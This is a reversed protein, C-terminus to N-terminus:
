VPNGGPLIEETYANPNTYQQAEEGSKAPLPYADLGDWRIDNYFKSKICTGDEFLSDCGWFGVPSVAFHKCQVEPGEPWNASVKEPCTPKWVGHGGGAAMPSMGGPPGHGDAEGYLGRSNSEDGSMLMWQRWRDATLWYAKPTHYQPHKKFFSFMHENVVREVGADVYPVDNLATRGTVVKHESRGSQKYYTPKHKTDLENKEDIANGPGVDIRDFFQQQTSMDRETELESDLDSNDQEGENVADDINFKNGWTSHGKEEEHEYHLTPNLPKLVPSSLPTYKQELKKTTKTELFSVAAQPMPPSCTVKMYKIHGQCAVQYDANKMVFGAPTSKWQTFGKSMLDPIKISHWGPGQETKSLERTMQSLPVGCVLLLGVSCLLLKMM